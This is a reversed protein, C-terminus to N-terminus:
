SKLEPHRQLWARLKKPDNLGGQVTRQQNKHQDGSGTGAVRPTKMM